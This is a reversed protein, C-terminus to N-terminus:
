IYFKNTISNLVNEIVKIEVVIDNYGYFDVGNHNELAKEFNACAIAKYNCNSAFALMAYCEVLHKNNLLEIVYPKESSILNTLSPGHVAIIIKANQVIQYQEKVTYDEFCVIEFGFNNQLLQELEIENKVKRHKAKKRSIYIKNFFQNLSPNIRKKILAKMEKVLDIHTIEPFKTIDIFHLNDCKLLKIKVGLVCYNLNALDYLELTQKQWNNFDESMNILLEPFHKKIVFLRSLVEQFWHFYNSTNLIFTSGSKIKKILIFHHIEPFIFENFWFTSINLFQKHKRSYITGYQNNILVNKFEFLRVSSSFYENLNGMRKTIIKSKQNFFDQNNFDARIIKELKEPYLIKFPNDRLFNKESLGANFKQSESLRFFLNTIKNSIWRYKIYILNIM